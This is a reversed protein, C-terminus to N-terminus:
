DSTSLSKCFSSGGRKDDDVTLLIHETGYLPKRDEVLLECVAEHYNIRAKNGCEIDESIGGIPHLFVGGRYALLDFGIDDLEVVVDESSDCGFKRAFLVHREGEYDTKHTSSRVGCKM